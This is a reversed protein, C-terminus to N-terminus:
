VAGAVDALDYGFISTCAERVAPRELLRDVIRRPIPHQRYRTMLSEVPSPQLSQSFSSGGGYASVESVVDLNPLSLAAAVDDRHARDEVFQNFSVTVKPTLASTYGLLEQCYEEYLDIYPVDVRFLRPMTKAAELRSAINNLPDRLILVHVLHPLSSTVSAFRLACDELGFITTRHQSAARQLDDATLDGLEFRRSNLRGCNNFFAVGAVEDRFGDRLQEHAGETVLGNKM